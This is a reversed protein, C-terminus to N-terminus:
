GLLTLPARPIWRSEKLKTSLPAGWIPRTVLGPDIYVERNRDYDALEFSITNASADRM